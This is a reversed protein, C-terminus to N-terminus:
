LQKENFNEPKPEDVTFIVTFAAGPGPGTQVIGGMQRALDGVLQLGLSQGRRAEFDASLGVGTDSVRLLAQCPGDGTASLPQLEVRVEGSGEHPFAHKFCNSILENVLLGCPTAQDMTVQVPSLDLQLRVAGCRSAQARFAQTALQRIYAGLDVSAFIGSRYLSEHLLAMSRIRGQMERLVEKTDQQASRGAELRLLSTIVQLNNKVRHHVENLLATKEQLLSHLNEESRKQGSIDIMLGRLWRPRGEEVVVRVIDRLWVIRGDQAVFRYEFDHNEQRGTCAACISMARERDEEVIHSAWFGPTLWEQVPYGLLRQANNSVSSFTFTTADAEWVIGETSEVLDRFRQESARLTEQVRYKETVDSFVLVVGVMHGNADRIPAASDAIQYERGSRALLATHNALGLVEGRAMVLQVPNAVPKRTQAHVIHFVEPLPKGLANGLTWGTLREAAPNMRTVRGAADTAIVGDGIANLTIALDQQSQKLATKQLALAQLLHNFGTILEGIEDHRTVPLETLSQTQASLTGLMKTAEIMPLLQRKMLWSTVWWALAGALLSFFLTGALMRQQMAHIPAFAEDTPLIAALDWGALPIGKVSGMQEIGTPDVFVVTGEFGQIFRDIFPNVGPAPLPALIRRKDTATIVLRLTPSNILYGGTKGYHLATIKDLFNPKELTTVGVLAGIVKGQGDRIPAAMGFVPTKLAKGIRPDGVGSKGGQLAGAVHKQELFNLGVRGAAVPVSASATGDLGTVFAGGNFLLPLISHHELSAQLAAPQSLLAPGLNAALAQLANLRLDLESNVQSALASATSFQQEGLLLTMDQRLLRSAYFALSWVGVLFVALTLLTVQTSLSRWRIASVGM